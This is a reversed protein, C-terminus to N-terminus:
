IKIEIKKLEEFMSLDVEAHSRIIPDIMFRLCIEGVDCNAMFIDSEIARLQGFLTPLSVWPAWFAENLESKTTDYIMRIENIEKGEEVQKWTKAVPFFCTLSKVNYNIFIYKKNLLVEINSSVRDRFEM